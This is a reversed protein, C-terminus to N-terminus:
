RGRGRSTRSRAARSAEVRAFAARAEDAQEAHEWIDRGYRDKARKTFKCQGDDTRLRLAKVREPDRHRFRRLEGGLHADFALLSAFCM